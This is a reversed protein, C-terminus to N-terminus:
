TELLDLEALSALFDDVERAAQAPDIECAQALREVLAERTAGSALDPWITAGTRNVAFYVSSRLDVAVIEGEVLRWEVAKPRLKLVSLISDSM